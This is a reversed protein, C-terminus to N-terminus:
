KASQDIPPPHIWEKTTIARECMEEVHDKIFRAEPPTHSSGKITVPWQRFEGACAYIDHGPLM